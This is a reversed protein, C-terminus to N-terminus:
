SNQLNTYLNPLSQTENIKQSKYDVEIQLLFHQTVFPIFIRESAKM